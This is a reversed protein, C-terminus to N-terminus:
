KAHKTKSQKNQIKNQSAKSQKNQKVKSIKNQIKNQIGKSQM